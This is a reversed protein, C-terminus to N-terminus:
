KNDEKKGPKKRKDSAALQLKATDVAVEVLEGRYQSLGTGNLVAILRREVLMLNELECNTRDGDKFYIMMGKPVPGHAEEWVLLQKM